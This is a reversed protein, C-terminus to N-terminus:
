ALVIPERWPNEFVDGPSVEAAPDIKPGQLSMGFVVPQKRSGVYASIRPREMVRAYFDYLHEHQALTAPFFARIEDLLAIALYDVHSISEGLWFEGGTRLFLRELAALYRALAGGAFLEPQSNYEPQWAFQWLTEQVEALAQQVEDYPVQGVPDAPM